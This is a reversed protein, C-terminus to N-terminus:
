PRDGGSIRQGNSGRFEMLVGVRLFQRDPFQLRTALVEGATKGVAMGDACIPLAPGTYPRGAAGAGALSWGREAFAAMLREAQDVGHCIVAEPREEERFAALKDVVKQFREIRSRGFHIWNDPVSLGCEFM